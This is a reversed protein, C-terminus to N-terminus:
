TKLCSNTCYCCRRPTKGSSARDNFEGKKGETYYHQKPVGPTSWPYQLSPYISCPNPKTKKIVVSICAWQLQWLKDGEQCVCKISGECMTWESRFVSLALLRSESCLNLFFFFFWLPTYDRWAESAKQSEVGDDKEWSRNGEGWESPTQTTNWQDQNYSNGRSEGPKYKGRPLPSVITM